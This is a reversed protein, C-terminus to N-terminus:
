FDYKAYVSFSRPNGPRFHGKASYDTVYEEDTLNDVNLQVKLADTFQYSAMFFATTYSDVTFYARNQRWFTEGSNYNLGGGLSLKDNMGTYSLWLSATDDPAGQLGNGVSDATLDQTIETELSVYSASISLSESLKGVAGLEFGKSEQEGTLYYNTVSNGESDTLRESDVVEKKTSFIAASLLLQQEFLEWKTGLEITKANEPDLNNQDANTSLALETGPPQQADSYSVYVNANASLLYSFAAGYSLFNEEANLGSSCVVTGRGSCGAGEIEFNDYRANLDIQFQEGLKITDFAYIAVTSAEGTNNNGNRELGGSVQINNNLNFPEITPNDLVNGNADSYVYNADVGYSTKEEKAYEVGVVLDHSIGEGVFSWISDLQTVFLDTEEDLAQLRTANLLHAEDGSNWWPRGLVSQKENSALRTQSRLSVTDNLRHNVTLTYMQTSVEEFDRGKVSYYGDWMDSNIPGEAQGTATAASETLFPLGLVPTNDQEMMFLDLTVDTKESAQYLGSVALGLTQYNEEGNDFTDGGDTYLLNIRAATTDSVKQNIDATVRGTGFSDARATVSNFSDLRARKTSLNLSGGGTSRGDLSSSSGKVVEVQEYNFLDRSYGAIDRIGDVYINSRADFGRISVKDSASVVGGGGEGGGFTSVGAVNRLADNLSTVGQDELVQSSIVNITKPTNAISQTFKVNSSQDVKYGDESITNAKTTELQQIEEAAVMFPICLAVTSALTTKTFHKFTKSDM